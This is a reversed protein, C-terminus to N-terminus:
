NGLQASGSGTATIPVGVLRPDDVPHAYSGPALVLTSGSWPAPRAVCDPPPPYPPVTGAWACSREVLAESISGYAAEIRGNGSSRGADVFVKGTYHKIYGHDTGDQDNDLMLVHLQGRMGHYDAVDDLDWITLGQPEQNGPKGDIVVGFIDCDWQFRFLHDPTMGSRALEHATQRGNADTRIEFAHLGHNRSDCNYGNSVYLVRDSPAFVGGQWSSLELPQGSADYLPVEGWVASYTLYAGGTELQSWDMAYRHLCTGVGSACEGGAASYVHGNSDVAAFGAQGKGNKMQTPIEIAAVLELSADARFIALFPLKGPGRGDAPVLVYGRGAHEYYSIDGFHDAGDLEPLSDADVWAIGPVRFDATLRQSLPVRYLSQKGAFYWHTDDHTVGNFDTTWDAEFDKPLNGIYRLYAEDTPFDALTHPDATAPAAVLLAALCTFLPLAARSRRREVPRSETRASRPRSTM